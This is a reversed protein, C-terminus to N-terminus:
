LEKDPCRLCMTCGFADHLGLHYHEQCQIHNVYKDAKEARPRRWRELWERSMQRNVVESVKKVPSDRKSEM